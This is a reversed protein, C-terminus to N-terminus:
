VRGKAEREKDQKTLADAAKERHGPTHKLWNADRENDIEIRRM